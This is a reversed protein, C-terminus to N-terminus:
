SKEHRSFDYFLIMFFVNLFFCLFFMLFLDNFFIMFIGSRFFFFVYFEDYIDDYKKWLYFISFIWIM